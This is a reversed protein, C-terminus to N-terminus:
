RQLGTRTTATVASVATTGNWRSRCRRGAARLEDLSPVDAVRVHRLVGGEVVYGGALTISGDPAWYRSVGFTRGSDPFLAGAIVHGGWNSM